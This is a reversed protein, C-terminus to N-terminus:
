RTVSRGSAAPMDKATGMAKLLAAAEDRYATSLLSRARDTAGDTDGVAYHAYALRYRAGLDNVKADMAVIRAYQGQEFLISIRQERQALSTPARGNMRLAHGYRRAMRYQDAAEFAYNGGLSVAEEFLRAASFWRRNHAYAHALSARFEADTPASAALGELLPIAARDTHMLQFLGLLTDRSPRMAMIQQAVRRVEGALGKRHALVALM